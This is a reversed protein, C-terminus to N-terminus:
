NFESGEWRTLIHILDDKKRVEWNGEDNEIGEAIWKDMYNKLAKFEFCIGIKRELDNILRIDIEFQGSKVVTPNVQNFKIFEIKKILHSYYNLSETDGRQSNHHEELAQNEVETPCIM